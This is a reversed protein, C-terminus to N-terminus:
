QGTTGAASGDISNQATDHTATDYLQTVQLLNSGQSMQDQIIATESSSERTMQEGHSLATGEPVVSTVTITQQIMTATQRISPSPVQAKKAQRRAEMARIRAELAARAAEKKEIEKRLSETHRKEAELAAAVARTRESTMTDEDDSDSDLDIIFSKPHAPALAKRGRNFTKARVPFFQSSDTVVPAQNDLDPTKPLAVKLSQLPSTSAPKAIVVSPPVPPGADSPPTTSLSPAEVPM